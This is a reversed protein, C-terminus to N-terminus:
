VCLAVTEVQGNLTIISYMRRVMKVFFSQFVRIQGGLLLRIVFNDQWDNDGLLGILLTYKLDEPKSLAFRFENRIFLTLILIM